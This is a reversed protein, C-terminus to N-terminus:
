MIQLHMLKVEKMTTINKKVRQFINKIPDKLLLHLSIEQNCENSRKKTGRKQTVSNKKAPPRFYSTFNKCNRENKKNWKKTHM